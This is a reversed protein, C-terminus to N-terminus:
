EGFTLILHGFKVDNSHVTDVSVSCGFLIDTDTVSAASVHPTIAELTLDKGQVQLKKFQRNTIDITAKVIGFSANSKNTTELAALTQNGLTPHEYLVEGLNYDLHFNYTVADSGDHVIFYVGPHIHINSMAKTSFEIGYTTGFIAPLYRYIYAKTSSAGDSSFLLCGPYFIGDLLTPSFVCSGPVVSTWLIFDSVFNTSYLTKGSRSYRSLGGLRVALDNVDQSYIGRSELSTGWDPYGSSM